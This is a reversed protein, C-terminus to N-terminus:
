VAIKMLFRDESFRNLIWNLEDIDQISGGAKHWDLILAPV